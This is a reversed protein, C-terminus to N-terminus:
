WIYFIWFIAMDFKVVITLDGMHRYDLFKLHDQRKHVMIDRLWTKVIIKENSELIRM